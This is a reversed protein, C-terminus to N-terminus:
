PRRTSRTSAQQRRGKRVLPRRTRPRRRARRGGSAWPRAGDVRVKMTLRLPACTVNENSGGVPVSDHSATDVRGSTAESWRPGPPVPARWTSSRGPSRPMPGPREATPRTPGRQARASQKRATRVSLRRPVDLARRKANGHRLLLDGERSRAFNCAPRSKESGGGAPGFPGPRRRRM